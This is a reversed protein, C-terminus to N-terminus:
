LFLNFFAACVSEYKWSKQIIIDNSDNHTEASFMYMYM